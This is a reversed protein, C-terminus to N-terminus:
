PDGQPLQAPGLLSMRGTRPQRAAVVRRLNPERLGPRTWRTPRIGQGSPQGWEILGSARPKSPSRRRAGDINPCTAATVDTQPITQPTTTLVIPPAGGAASRSRDQDPDAGHPRYGSRPDSAPPRHPVGLTSCIRKAKVGRSSFTNRARHWAGGALTKSASGGCTPATVSRCRAEAPPLSRSAINRM